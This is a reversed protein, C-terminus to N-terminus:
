RKLQVELRYNLNEIFAKCETSINNIWFWISLRKQFIHNESENCEWYPSVSHTFKFVELYVTSLTSNNIYTSIVLNFAEPYLYQAVFCLREVIASVILWTLLSPKLVRSCSSFARMFFSDFNLIKKCFIFFYFIKYFYSLFNHLVAIDYLLIFFNM